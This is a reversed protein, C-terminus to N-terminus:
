HEKAVLKTLDHKAKEVANIRVKRLTEAKAKKQLMLHKTGQIHSSNAITGLRPSLYSVNNVGVSRRSEQM